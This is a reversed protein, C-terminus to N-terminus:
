ASCFRFTAHPHSSVVPSVHGRRRRSRLVRADDDELEAAFQQLMRLAPAADGLRNVTQPGAARQDDDMAAPAVDVSLHREPLDRFPRDVSQPDGIRGGEVHDHPNQGPLDVGPQHRRRPRGPDGGDTQRGSVRTDRLNPPRRGVRGRVSRDDVQTVDALRLALAAGFQDFTEEGAPEDGDDGADAGVISLQQVHVGVRERTM